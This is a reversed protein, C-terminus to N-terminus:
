CTSLHHRFIITSHHRFIAAICTVSFAPTLSEPIFDKPSFMTRLKFPSFIVKVNLDKCCKNIISSIKKGTSTSYFGIYPLKYFHCKSADFTSTDIDQETTKLYGKVSKDILWSPFLNRKLIVSLNKIDNQFGQTTNNIKYARDIYKFPTFSFYNTLLGTYTKKRFVSTVCSCQNDSTSQKSLLVHLFPLQGEEETEMTFKIDPHCLYEFFLIADESNRFL